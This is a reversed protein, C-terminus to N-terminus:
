LCRSDNRIVVIIRRKLVVLEILDTTQEIMMILNAHVTTFYVVSTTKIILSFYTVSLDYQCYLRTTFICDSFLFTTPEFHKSFLLKDLYEFIHWMHNQFCDYEWFELFIRVYIYLMGCSDRDFGLDLSCCCLGVLEALYPVDKSCSAFIHIQPNYRCTVRTWKVVTCIFSISGVRGFGATNGFIAVHFDSRSRLLFVEHHRIPFHCQRFVQRKLVGVQKKRCGRRIKKSFKSFKLTVASDAPASRSPAFTM